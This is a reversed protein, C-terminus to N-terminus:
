DVRTLASVHVTQKKQLFNIAGGDLDDFRIRITLSETSLTCFYGGEDRPSCSGTFNVGYYSFSDLLSGAVILYKDGEIVEIEILDYVRGDHDFSWFAGVFLLSHLLSM